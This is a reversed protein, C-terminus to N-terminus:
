MFYMFTILSVLCLVVHSTLFWAPKKLESASILVEWNIVMELASWTFTNTDQGRDNGNMVLQSLYPFTVQM